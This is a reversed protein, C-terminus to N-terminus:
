SERILSRTLITLTKTYHIELQRLRTRMSGRLVDDSLLTRDIPALPMFQPEEVKHSPKGDDIFLCTIAKLVALPPGTSDVPVQFPL